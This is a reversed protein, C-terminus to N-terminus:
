DEDVQPPRRRRLLQRHEAAEEPTESAALAAYGFAEWGTIRYLLAAWRTFAGLDPEPQVSESVARIREEEVAHIEDTSVQPTVPTTAPSSAYTVNDVTTVTM